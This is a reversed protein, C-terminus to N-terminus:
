IKHIIPTLADMGEISIDNLNKESLYVFEIFCRRDPDGKKICVM